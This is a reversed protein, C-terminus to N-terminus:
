DRRIWWDNSLILDTHISWAEEWEGERNLELIEGKEIKLVLIDTVSQEVAVTSGYRMATLAEEFTM